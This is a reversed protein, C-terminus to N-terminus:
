RAKWPAHRTWAAFASHEGAFAVLESGRPDLDVRGLKVPRGWLALASLGVWLVLAAHAGGLMAGLGRNTGGGGEQGALARAAARLVVTAAFTCAVFALVAAAPAAAFAPLRGRLLPEVWPAVARGGWWGVAAAGLHAVQTLAGLFAGAVAAVFVLALCGLDLSM